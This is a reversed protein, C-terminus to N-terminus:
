PAREIRVKLREQMGDISLKDKEKFTWSCLDCRMEWQMWSHNYIGLQYVVVFGTPAFIRCRMCRKPTILKNVVQIEARFGRDYIFGIGYLDVDLLFAGPRISLELRADSLNSFAHFGCQCSAVPPVHEPFESCKASDDSSYKDGTLGTLVPLRETILAIKYGHMDERPLSFADDYALRGQSNGLQSQEKDVARGVLIFAVIFFGPLLVSYFALFTLILDKSFFLTEGEDFAGLLYAVGVILLTLFPSVRVAYILAKKKDAPNLPM